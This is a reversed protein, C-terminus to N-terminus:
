KGSTHVPVSNSDSSDIVDEIWDRYLLIDTYVALKTVDCMGSDTLSSSVVGKLYNTRGEKIIFGGGSDGLCVGTGNQLGACFTRKSSFEALKPTELFCDENPQIPAEILKPIEEYSRWPNESKGWGVVTGVTESPSTSSDWLCVPQVYESFPIKGIEFILIAIDADYATTYPNWEDHVIIKTPSFSIRGPEYNDTLNHAGFIALIDRPRFRESTKKQHM